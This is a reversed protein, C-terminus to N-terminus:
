NGLTKVVNKNKSPLVPVQALAESKVLIEDNGLIRLRCGNPMKDPLEYM